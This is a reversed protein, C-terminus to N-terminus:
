KIITVTSEQGKNKLLKQYNKFQKKPVKIVCKKHIGKLANKQISKLGTAIITIKKVKNCKVFANKAIGTVRYKVGKYTVTNAIKVSAVTKKKIGVLTM